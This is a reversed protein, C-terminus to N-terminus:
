AHLGRQSVLFEATQGLLGWSSHEKGREDLLKTLHETLQRRHKELNAEIAAAVVPPVSKRLKMGHAICCAAQSRLWEKVQKQGLCSVFERIRLDEEEQLVHCMECPSGIFAEYRERLLGLFLEAAVSADQAAALGWVHFNCLHDVRRTAPDQLLAAQFNKM